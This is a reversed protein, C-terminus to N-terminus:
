LPVADTQDDTTDREEDSFPDEVADGAGESGTVNSTRPHLQLEPAQQLHARLQHDDFYHIDPVALLKRDQIAQHFFVKTSDRVRRYRSRQLRRCTPFWSSHNEVGPLRIKKWGNQKARARQREAPRRYKLSVRRGRWSRPGTGPHICSPPQQAM